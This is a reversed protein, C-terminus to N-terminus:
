MTTRGGSKGAADKRTVLALEESVACVRFPAAAEMKYAYHHYAKV